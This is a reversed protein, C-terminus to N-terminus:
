TLCLSTCVFLLAFRLCALLFVCACWCMRVHVCVCVVDEKEENVIFNNAHTIVYQIQM